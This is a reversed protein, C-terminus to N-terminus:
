RRQMLSTRSGTTSSTPPHPPPPPLTTSSHHSSYLATHSLFLTHPPSPTPLYSARVRDPFRCPPALTSIWSVVTFNNVPICFYHHHPFYHPARQALSSLNPFVMFPSVFDLTHTCAGHGHRVGVGGWCLFARGRKPFPLFFYSHLMHIFVIKVLEGSPAPFDLKWGTLFFFSSYQYRFLGVSWDSLCPLWVELLSFPNCCSNLLYHSSACAYYLILEFLMYICAFSSTSKLPIM